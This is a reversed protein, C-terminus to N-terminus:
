YRQSKEELNRHRPRGVSNALDDLSMDVPFIFVRPHFHYRLLSPSLVWLISILYGHTYPSLLWSHLSIIALFSLLHFTYPHLSIIGTLLPLYHDRILPILRYGSISFPSVWWLFLAWLHLSIIGMLLPLRYGRKSPFLHYSPTSPSSVKSQRSLDM